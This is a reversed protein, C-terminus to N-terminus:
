PNPLIETGSFTVPGIVTATGGSVVRAELYYLVTGTVKPLDVHGFSTTKLNDFNAEGNDRTTFIVKGTNPDNRLISFEVVPFGSTAIWGVVAELHVRSSVGDITMTRPGNLSSIVRRSPLLPKSVAGSTNSPPAASNIENLPSMKEGGKM